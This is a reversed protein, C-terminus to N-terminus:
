AAVMLQAVRSAGAGDTVNLAKRSMKAINLRGSLADDLAVAITAPTVESADGIYRCAGYETAERVVHRQNEATVVVLAPLGVSCREWIATGGAGVSIDASAMLTAMRDTQVHYRVAPMGAVIDGIAGARRNGAGVVVDFLVDPAALLDIAQIARTTVDLADGGGFFFLVCRVRRRVSAQSHAQAFAPSLLAYQPGLLLRCAAPVRLAYQAASNRALNQDLLLDCEHARDALDDIVLVKTRDARAAREWKADLGYHDVVLWSPEQDQEFWSRAIEATRFDGPPDDWLDARLPIVEMAETSRAMSGPLERTLLSSRIGRAYLAEALASCRSIHGAGIDTSSDARILVRM